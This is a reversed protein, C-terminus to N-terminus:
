FPQLKEIVSSLLSVSDYVVLCDYLSGVELCHRCELENCSELMGM